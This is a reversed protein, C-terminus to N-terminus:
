VQMICCKYEVMICVKHIATICHSPHQTIGLHYQLEELAVTKVNEESATEPSGFLETFWEGGLM